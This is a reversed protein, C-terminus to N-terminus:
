TLRSSLLDLADTFSGDVACAQLARDYPLREAITLLEPEHARAVLVPASDPMWLASFSLPLARAIRGLPGDIPGTSRPQRERTYPHHSWLDDLGEFFEDRAAFHIHEVNLMISTSMCMPCPELTTYLHFGVASFTSMAAFANMEAHAAFNGSLTGPEDSRHAVRNRGTSVIEGSRPDVLVAGIGFNGTRWSEWAEEFAIHWPSPLREFEAAAASM